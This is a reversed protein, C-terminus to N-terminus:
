MNCRDNEYWENSCVLQSGGKIGHQPATIVDKMTAATAFKLLSLPLMDSKAKTSPLVSRLVDMGTCISVTHACACTTGCMEGARTHSVM